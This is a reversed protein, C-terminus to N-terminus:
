PNICLNVAQEFHSGDEAIFDIAYNMAVPETVPPTHIEYVVNDASIDHEIIYIACNELSSNDLSEPTSAAFRVSQCSGAESSDNAVLPASCLATDGAGIHRWQLPQGGLAAATNVALESIDVLQPEEAVLNIVVPEGPLAAQFIMEVAPEQTGTSDVWGCGTPLIIAAAALISGRIGSKCPRYPSRTNNTVSNTNDM